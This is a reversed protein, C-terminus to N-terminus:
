QGDGLFTRGRVQWLPVEFRFHRKETVQSLAAGLAFRSPSSWPLSAGATARIAGKRTCPVRPRRSALRRKSVPPLGIRRTRAQPIM